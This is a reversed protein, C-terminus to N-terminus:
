SFSLVSLLFSKYMESFLLCPLIHLFLSIHHKVPHSMNQANKCVRCTLHHHDEVTSVATLQMQTYTFTHTGTCLHSHTHVSLATTSLFHRGLDSRVKNHLLIRVSSFAKDNSDEEVQRGASPNYTHAAM